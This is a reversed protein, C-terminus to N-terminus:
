RSVYMNVISSDLLHANVNARVGEAPIAVASTLTGSKFVLKVGLELKKSIGM